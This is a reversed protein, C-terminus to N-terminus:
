SIYLEGLHFHDDNAYSYGHLSVRLYEITSSSLFLSIFIKRWTTCWSFSSFIVVRGDYHTCVFIFIQQFHFELEIPLKHYLTYEDYIFYYLFLIVNTTKTSIIIQLIHILNARIIYKNYIYTILFLIGLYYIM